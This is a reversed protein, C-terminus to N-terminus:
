REALAPRDQPFEEDLEENFVFFRYALFRFITGLILGIVGGSVFDATFSQFGLVYRSVVQCLVTIGLGIANMAIFLTFEKWPRDSRRHRFTWYRNAFWSFLTAVTTSVVRAKITSDAMAGHWLVTYIGNDIAWGVGGVLGFKTVERWLLNVLSAVRDFLNQV